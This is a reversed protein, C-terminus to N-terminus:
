GMAICTRPRAIRWRASWTMPAGASTSTAVEPTLNLSVEYVHRGKFSTLYLAAEGCRRARCWVAQWEGGLRPARDVVAVRKGWYAAQAAAKEGAPGGGLVVLDYRTATSDSPM